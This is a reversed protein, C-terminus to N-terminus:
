ESYVTDTTLMLGIAVGAVIWWFEGSKKLESSNLNESPVGDFAGINEVKQISSQLTQETALENASISSTLLVTALAMTTLANKIQM